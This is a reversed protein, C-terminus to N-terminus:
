IIGEKEAKGQAAMDQAIKIAQQQSNAYVVYAGEYICTSDKYQSYLDYDDYRADWEGFAETVIYRLRNTRFKTTDYEEYSAIDEFYKSGKKESIIECIRKAEEETEVVGVIHRDSYVGKEIVYVKM